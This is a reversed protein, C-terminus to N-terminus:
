AASRGGMARQKLKFAYLSKHRRLIRDLAEGKATSASSPAVFRSLIGVAEAQRVAKNSSMERFVAMFAPDDGLTTELRTVYGIVVSDDMPRAKKNRKSASAVSPIELVTRSM